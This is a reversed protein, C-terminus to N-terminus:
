KYKRKKNFKANSTQKTKQMWAVTITAIAGIIAAIVAPDTISNIPNTDETSGRVMKDTTTEGKQGINDIATLKINYLGPKSYIHSMPFAKKNEKEGDGWDVEIRDIKGTESIADGSITVILDDKNEVNDIRIEPLKQEIVILNSIELSENFNNSISTKINYAGPKSYLHSTPLNNSNIDEVKGDGWDIKISTINGGSESKITGELMVKLGEVTPKLNSIIKPLETNVSISTKNSLNKSDYVILQIEYNGLNSYLHSILLNNSNIDEVKGDGWDIKISTINGGSHSKVMGELMVKLGEVKPESISIIPKPLDFAIDGWTSPNYDQWTRESFSPNPYIISTLDSQNTRGDNQKISFGYTQPEVTFYIKFIGQWGNSTSLIKCIIKLLPENLNITGTDSAKVFEEGSRYNITNDRYIIIEQDDDQIKKSGNHGVDFYLRISDFEGKNTPLTKDPIIFAGDLTHNTIDYKLFLSVNKGQLNASPFSIKIADQWIEPDIVGINIDDISLTKKALPVLIPKDNHGM